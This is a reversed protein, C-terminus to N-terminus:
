KKNKLRERVERALNAFDEKSLRGSDRLAKLRLLVADLDLPGDLLGREVGVKSLKAALKEGLPRGHKRALNVGQKVALLRLQAFLERRIM